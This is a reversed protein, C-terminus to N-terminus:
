AQRPLASLAASVRRYLEDLADRAPAPPRLGSSGAPKGWHVYSAGGDGSIVVHLPLFVAASRDLAIAEFLLVPTDVLLAVCHRGAGLHFCPERSLDFEEVVTLGGTTLLRRVLPLAKDYPLPVARTVGAAMSNM